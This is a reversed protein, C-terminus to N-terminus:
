KLELESIEVQGVLVDTYQISHCRPYGADNEEIRFINPYVGKIEAESNKVTLKPRTKNINVHIKGGNKYLKELAFRVEEVTKM